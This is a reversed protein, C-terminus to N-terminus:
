RTYIATCQAYSQAFMRAQTAPDFGSRAADEAAVANCFESNTPAAAAETSAVAPPAVRQPTSRSPAADEELGGYRMAHDWDADSCGALLLCLCLLYRRKTM